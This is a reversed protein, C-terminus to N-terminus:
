LQHYYYNERTEQKSAVLPRHWPPLNGLLNQLRLIFLNLLSFSNRQWICYPSHLFQLISQPKRKTKSPITIWTNRLLMRPTSCVALKISSATFPDNISQLNKVYAEVQCKSYAMPALLLTSYLNQGCSTLIWTEITFM